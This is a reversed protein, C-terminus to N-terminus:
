ENKEGIQNSVFSKLKEIVDDITEFEESEGDYTLELLQGYLKGQSRKQLSLFKILREKSKEYYGGEALRPVPAEFPVQIKQGKRVLIKAFGWPSAASMTSQRAAPLATYLAIVFAEVTDKVYSEGLTELLQGLDLDIYRYYTSSNFENTGIHSSGQDQVNDDLATFYDIENDVQHTSIAHAFAAAGEINMEAAKAVMRGFLAIDIADIHKKRDKDCLIKAFDKALDNKESKEVKNKNKKEKVKLIEDPVFGVSRFKEAVISIESPSMFILTDQKTDSSGEKVFALEIREGCAKSQEETAGLKRCENSILDGILKTRTGCKVKGHEQQINKLVMRVSRKWAQSSVRARTVGGVVATKPAGLDDRNLCSVPFSQLIHFEVHVGKLTNKTEM